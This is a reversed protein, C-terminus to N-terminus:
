SFVATAQRSSTRNRLAITVKNYHEMLNLSTQIVDECDRYTSAFQLNDKLTQAYQQGLRREVERPSMRRM